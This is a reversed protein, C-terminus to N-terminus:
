HTTVADGEGGGPGQRGTQERAERAKEQLWLGISEAQEATLMMGVLVTRQFTGSPKSALEQGLKGDPTMEQTIEEPLLVSEHFLDVSIDGRPTVAGWAGNVPILRYDADKAFRFTIKM